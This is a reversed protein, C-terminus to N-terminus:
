IGGHAHINTQQSKQTNDPLPRQSSSIVRESSDQRSHHTTSHSRSVEYFHPAMSLCNHNLKIPSSDNSANKCAMLLSMLTSITQLLVPPVIFPSIFFPLKHDFDHELRESGLFHGQYWIILLRPLGWCGNPCKPYCGQGRDSSNILGKCGFEQLDMKVDDQGKHM